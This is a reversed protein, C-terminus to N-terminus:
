NFFKERQRLFQPRRPPKKKYTKTPKKTSDDDNKKPPKAGNAIPKTEHYVPFFEVFKELNEASILPGM